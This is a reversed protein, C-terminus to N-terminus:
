GREGSVCCTRASEAGSSHLYDPQDKIEGGLKGGRTAIKGAAGPNGSLAIGYARGAGHGSPDSRLAAIRDPKLSFFNRLTQEYAEAVAEADKNEAPVRFINAAPVPLKSLLSEKAMRYNSDPDDPPVHREDGWFFFVKDWPLSSRANAAILTYLNKPTSGGSLAITFRGRDRLRTLQCRPYSGGGGGSFTGASHCAAASRGVCECRERAAMAAIPQRAGRRGWCVREQRQYHGAGSDNGSAFAAQGERSFSAHFTARVLKPLIKPTIGGGLFIGGTAMAKLALNGAEAGYVSIWLDLAHEALPNSGDLAARPFGAAADGHELQAAFGDPEDGYGKGRLFEYVNVLGPGSLM